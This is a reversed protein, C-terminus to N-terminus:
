WLKRKGCGCSRDRFIYLYVIEVIRCWIPTKENKNNYNKLKVRLKLYFPKNKCFNDM